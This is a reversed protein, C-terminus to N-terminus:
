ARDTAPILIQAVCQMLVQWTRSFQVSPLCGDGVTDELRSLLWHHGQPKAFGGSVNMSVENISALDNTGIPRVVHWLM